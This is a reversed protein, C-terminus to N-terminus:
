HPRHYLTDYRGNDHREGEPNVKDHRSRESRVDHGNRGNWSGHNAKTQEIQPEKTRREM